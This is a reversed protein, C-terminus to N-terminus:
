SRGYRAIKGWRNAYLRRAASECRTGLSTVYIVFFECFDEGSNEGSYPSPRRADAAIVATWEAVDDGSRWLTEQYNHGTEHMVRNDIDTQTQASRMPFFTIEGRGARAAVTRHPRSDPDPVPCAILTDNLERQAIPVARLAVALQETTPLNSSRVVAAAPLTVAYIKRGITITQRVAATTSGDHWEFADLTEPRSVTASGSRLREFVNAPATVIGVSAPNVYLCSGRVAGSSAAGICLPGRLHPGPPALPDEHLGFRQMRHLHAYV